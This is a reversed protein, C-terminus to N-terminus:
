WAAVVARPPDELYSHQPHRHCGSADVVGPYISYSKTLSVPIEMSNTIHLVAITIIYTSLFAWAWFLGWGYKWAAWSPLVMLPWSLLLSVVTPFRTDGAGRLAFSFILSVSDFLSYVAVFRLLVPVVQAVREWKEPESEGQFLFLFVGPALVYLAAVGAMYVWALRFGTNTTREALDARNGGLRQGVLVSVAQAVGLMPLIAVLNITFAINSAGLEADGLRGVLFIFVTFALGELAWQLGSPVGFRLLRRLLDFDPRDLV